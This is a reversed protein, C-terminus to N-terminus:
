LFQPLYLNVKPKRQLSNPPSFVILMIDNTIKARKCKLYDNKDIKSWDVCKKMSRRLMLDLESKMTM